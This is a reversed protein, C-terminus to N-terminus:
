IINSKFELMDGMNGKRQLYVHLWGTLHSRASSISKGNKVHRTINM